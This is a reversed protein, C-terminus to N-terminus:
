RKITFKGNVTERGARISVIYVGDSLTSVDFTNEKSLETNFSNVIRGSVDTIKVEASVSEELNTILTFNGNSPAPYINLIKLQEIETNFSQVGSPIATSNIWCYTKDKNTNCIFNITDTFNGAKEPKFKVQFSYLEEATITFHVVSAIIPLNTSFMSNNLGSYSFIKVPVIGANIIRVEKIASDGVMVSDFLVDNVWIVPEGSNIAGLKQTQSKLNEQYGFLHSFLLFVFFSLLRKM